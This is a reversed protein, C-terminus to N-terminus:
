PAGPLIRVQSARNLFETTNREGLDATTRIHLDSPEKVTQSNARIEAFQLLMQLM